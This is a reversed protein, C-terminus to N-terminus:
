IKWSISKNIHPMSYKVLNVNFRTFPKEFMLEELKNNSIYRTAISYKFTIPFYSETYGLTIALPDNNILEKTIENYETIVECIGIYKNTEKDYM